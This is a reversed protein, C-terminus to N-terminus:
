QKRPDLTIMILKNIFNLLIIGVIVIILIGLLLNTDRNKAAEFILWGVGPLQFMTEVIVTGSILIILHSSVIRSILIILANKIHNWLNAGKAIAMLIYNEKMVGFLEEKSHKTMENLTGEFIGLILAPIIFHFWEIENGCPQLKNYSLKLIVYSFIFIPIGSLTYLVFKFIVPLFTHRLRNFLFLFIATGLISTLLALTILFITNKISALIKPLVDERGDKTKGFDQNVVIKKVWNFYHVNWSSEQGQEIHSYYDGGPSFYVLLFIVLSAIFLSFICRSGERILTIFFSM